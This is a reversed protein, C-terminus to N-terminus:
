HKRTSDTPTDSREESSDSAAEEVGELNAVWAHNVAEEATLRLQPAPAMAKVIFDISDMSAGVSDLERSPFPTVKAVYSALQRDGFCPKSTLLRHCIEGLSWLDVASSYPSEDLGENDEDHDDEQLNDPCYLGIVEPAMYGRTGVRRTRLATSGEMRKSIGFDSIKVWWSPSRRFILINSPKLDRHAFGNAHMLQLGEAIQSAINRTETEPVPKRLYRQLDGYKLYEMSIFLYTDDEFWGFSQVFCHVFKEHSFKAIVELERYVESTPVGPVKRIEKVARLPPRSSPASNTDAIRKELWVTGFTGSGLASKREWTEETKLRRRRASTGIATRTHKTRVATGEAHFTTEIKSDLVLDPIRTSPEGRRAAM